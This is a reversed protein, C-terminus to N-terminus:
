AERKTGGKKEEKPLVRRRTLAGGKPNHNPPLGRRDRWRAVSVGSCGLERGIARDSLGQMYLEEGRQWDYQQPKGRKPNNAPRRLQYCRWKQTKSLSIGVRDAIERDTAGANYLQMAQEQWDAAPKPQPKTLDPVYRPCNCPLQLKPPLGAIRSHGTLGSYNCRGNANVNNHNRYICDPHKCRESAKM